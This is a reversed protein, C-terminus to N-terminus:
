QYMARDSHSGANSVFEFEVVVPHVQFLWQGVAYQNLSQTPTADLRPLESDAHPTIMISAITSLLGVDDDCYCAFIVRVDYYLNTM